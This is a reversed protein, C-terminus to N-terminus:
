AARSQALQDCIEHIVDQRIDYELLETDTAGGFTRSELAESQKKLLDNLEARLQEARHKEM